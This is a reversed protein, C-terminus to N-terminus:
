SLQQSKNNISTRYRLNLLKYREELQSFVDSPLLKQTHFKEIEKKFDDLLAKMDKILLILDHMEKQMEKQETMESALNLREAKPLQIFNVIDDSIEKPVKKLEIQETNKSFVLDVYRTGREIAVVVVGDLALIGEPQPWPIMKKFKFSDWIAIRETTILVFVTIFKAHKTELWAFPKEDKLLLIQTAICYDRVSFAGMNKLIRSFEEECSNQSRAVNIARELDALNSIAYFRKALEVYVVPHGCHSCPFVVEDELPVVNKPVEQRFYKRVDKPHLRAIAIGHGCYPCAGQRMQHAMIAVKPAFMEGLIGGPKTPKEAPTWKNSDIFVPMGKFQLSM